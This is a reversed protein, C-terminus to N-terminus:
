KCSDGPPRLIKKLDVESPLSIAAKVRFSGILERNDQSIYRSRHDTSDIWEIKRSPSMSPEKLFHSLGENYRKVELTSPYDKTHCFSDLYCIRALRILNEEKSRDMESLAVYILEPFAGQDLGRLKSYPCESFFQMKEAETEFPHDALKLAAVFAKWKGRFHPFQSAEAFDMSQPLKGTTQTQQLVLDLIKPWYPESKVKSMFSFAVPWQLHGQMATKMMQKFLEERVPNFREDWEVESLLEPDSQYISELDNSRSYPHQNRQNLIDDLSVSLESRMILYRAKNLPALDASGFSSQSRDLNLFIRAALHQAETLNLQRLVDVQNTKSNPSLEEAVGSRKPDDLIQAAFLARQLLNMESFKPSPLQIPVQSISKWGRTRQPLTDLSELSVMVAASIDNPNYYNHYGSHDKAQFKSVISFGNPLEVQMKIGSKSTMAQRIDPHNVLSDNAFFNPLILDNVGSKKAILEMIKKAHHEHLAPGSITLIYPLKKGDPTTADIVVTYGKIKEGEKVWYAQVGRSLVYHPVSAISCDGGFIGRFPTAATPIEELTLTKPFLHAGETSVPTTAKAIQKGIFDRKVQVWREGLVGLGPTVRLEDVQNKLHELNSQSYIENLQDGKVSDLFSEPNGPAAKLIPYARLYSSVRKKFDEERKRVDKESRASDKWDRLVKKFDLPDSGSKIAARLVALDHFLSDQISKIARPDVRGESDFYSISLREVSNFALPKAEAGLLHHVENLNEVTLMLNRRYDLHTAFLKDGYLRDLSRLFAVRSLATSLDPEDNGGYCLSGNMMWLIVIVILSRM